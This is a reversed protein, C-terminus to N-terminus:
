SPTDGIKTHDLCDMIEQEAEHWHILDYGQPRGHNEWLEYAREAILKHIAASLETPDIENMEVSGKKALSSDLSRITGGADRSPEGPRRGTVVAIDETSHDPTPGEGFARVLQQELWRRVMPPAAKIEDAYLTISAM